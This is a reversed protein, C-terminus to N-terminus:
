DSLWVRARYVRMEGAAGGAPEYSVTQGTGVIDEYGAVVNWVAGDMGTGQELAYHRSLGEYGPGTAAVTVFSVMVRGGVLQADVGFWEGDATPSTGAIYEELNSVGDGDPDSTDSTDAPDSLGSLQDTEWTDPLADQDADESVSLSYRIVSLSLDFMADGSYLSNNFWHVAVVNETQLAPLIADKFTASWTATSGAVYGTCIEDHTVFTGPDGQVNVRALEQGNVWLIFGDDYDVALSLEAIKAPDALRVTKRLFVSTYRGSMALKTGYALPGYGFPAHGTSWGSDDFRAGRWLSAPSSAESSGPRYQWAAGKAVLEIPEAVPAKATISIPDCYPGYGGGNVGRIKYYYTTGPELGRDTYTAVNAAPYVADFAYWYTGDLSKRLMYQTENPLDSWTLRVETASVASAAFGEPPAPVPETVTITVDITLPGNVAGSGNDEVTIVRAYTGPALDATTFAVTHMRKDGPGTSAGTAPSVALKSSTEILRYQLTGTGGNWVQIVADPADQGQEGIVAIATSNLAIRPGAATTGPMSYAQGADDLVLVWDRDDGSAGPPDFTRTGAAAYQAFPSATVSGNADYCKGDRPSYWWANATSGSIKTMDVTFTYGKTTYVFVYSKDSGRVAMRYSGDSTSGAGSALVAPDPIRGLVPRSECLARLHRMGAGGAASLAQQWGSRHPWISSHGYTHGLAGAFVAWYAQYRAVHPTITAGNIDTGGEYAGEAHLTPKTPTKAYDSSVNSPINAVHKWTQIMNFDLWPDSQFWRSSRTSAHYTMLTTSYDAAGDHQNIGNVGDAVGEAVARIVPRYDLGDSEADFDQGLSWILRTRNRFHGGLIRGYAYGKATSTIYWPSDSRIVEGIGLCIYLGHSDAEDIVSDVHSLYQPNPQTADGNLFIAHGAADKTMWGASFFTQIANFKRQARDALYVTAESRTYRGFLSWGTDGMWCFPEGTQSDVLFRKNDSVRLGPQVAAVTGSALSAGLILMLSVAQKRRTTASQGRARRSLTPIRM